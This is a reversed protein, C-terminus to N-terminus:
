RLIALTRRANLRGVVGAVAEFLSTARCLAGASPSVLLNLSKPRLAVEAGNSDRLSGRDVNLAVNVFQLKERSRSRAGDEDKARLMRRHM